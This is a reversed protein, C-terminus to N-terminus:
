GAKQKHQKVYSFMGSDRHFPFASGKLIEGLDYLLCTVSIFNNNLRVVRHLPHQKQAWKM